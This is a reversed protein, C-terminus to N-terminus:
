LCDALSLFARRNLDTLRASAEASDKTRPSGTTRYYLMSSWIQRMKSHVTLKEGPLYNLQECSVIRAPNRYPRVKCM